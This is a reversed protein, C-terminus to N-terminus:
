SVTTNRQLIQKSGEILKLLSELIQLSSRKPEQPNQFVIHDTKVFAKLM